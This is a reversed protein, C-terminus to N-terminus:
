YAAGRMTETDTGAQLNQDQKLEQGSKKSSSGHPFSYVREEGVQKQTYHKMVAIIGQSVHAIITKRFKEGLYEIKKLLKWSPFM